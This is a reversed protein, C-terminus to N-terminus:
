RTYIQFHDVVTLRGLAELQLWGVVPLLRQLVGLEEAPAAVLKALLAERLLIRGPTILLHLLHRVVNGVRERKVHYDLLQRATVM